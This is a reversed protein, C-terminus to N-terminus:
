NSTEIMLLAIGVLMLALGAYNIPLLNLAYLGLLLCITGVVGPATTGPAMFEIILGYIGVLLLIFAVNPNTIISLFRFTWRPEITEIAADRQDAQDQSTHSGQDSGDLGAGFRPGYPTWPESVLCSHKPFQCEDRAATAVVIRQLAPADPRHFRKMRDRGVGVLLIELVDHLNQVPPLHIRRKEERHAADARKSGIRECPFQRRVPEFPIKISAVVTRDAGAVRDKDCKGRFASQSDCRPKWERAVNLSSSM